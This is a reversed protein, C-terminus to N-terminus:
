KGLWHAVGKPRRCWYRRSSQSIEMEPQTWCIRIRGWEVFTIGGNRISRSKSFFWAVFNAFSTEGSSFNILEEMKSFFLVYQVHSSCESVVVASLRDIVGRQLLTSSFKIWTFSCRLNTISKPRLFLCIVFFYTFLTFSFLLVLNLLFNLM